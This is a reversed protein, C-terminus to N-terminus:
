FNQKYTYWIWAVALLVLLIIWIWNTKSKRKPAFFGEKKSSFNLRELLDISFILRKLKSMIADNVSDKDQPKKTLYRTLSDKDFIKKVLEIDKQSINQKSLVQVISDKNALFKSSSEPTMYLAFNNYVQSTENIIFRRVTDHKEEPTKAKQSIDSSIKRIDYFTPNEIIPM